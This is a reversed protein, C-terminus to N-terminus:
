SNRKDRHGSFLLHFAQLWSSGVAPGTSQLEKMSRGSFSVPTGTCHAWAPESAVQLTHAFPVSACHPHFTNELEICSVNILWAGLSWYESRESEDMRPWTIFMGWVKGEQCWSFWGAHTFVSVFSRLERRSKGCLPNHCVTPLVALKGPQPILYSLLFGILTQVNQVQGTWYIRRLDHFDHKTSGSYVTIAVLWM